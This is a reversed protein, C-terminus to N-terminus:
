GSKLKTFKTLRDILENIKKISRLNGKTSKNNERVQNEPTFKMETKLIGIEQWLSDDLLEIFNSDKFPIVHKYNVCLTKTDWMKNPDFYLVGM